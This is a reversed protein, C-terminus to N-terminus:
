LITHDVCIRILTIATVNRFGDRDWVKYRWMSCSLYYHEVYKHSYTFILKSNLDFNQLTVMCRDSLRFFRHGVMEAELVTKGCLFRTLGVCESM